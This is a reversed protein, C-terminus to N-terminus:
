LVVKLWFHKLNIFKCQDVFAQYFPTPSPTVKDELFCMGLFGEMLSNCANEPYVVNSVVVSCFNFKLAKTEGNAM